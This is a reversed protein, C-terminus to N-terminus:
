RITARRAAEVVSLACVRLEHEWCKGGTNSLNKGGRDLRLEYMVQTRSGVDEWGVHTPITVILPNSASAPALTFAASSELEIRIADALRQTLGDDGGTVVEVPVRGHAHIM